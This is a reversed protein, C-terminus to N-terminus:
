HALGLLDAKLGVDIPNDGLFIRLLALNFEPEVICTGDGHGNIGLYTGQGPVWDISLSDGAKLAKQANVMEGLKAIGVSARAVESPTSTASIARVLVDSIEKGSVGRLFHLQLRRAMLPVTAAELSAVPKATYLSAVYIKVLFKRRLGAGNLRLPGASTDVSSPVRVDAIVMSGTQTWATVSLSMMVIALAGMAMVRAKSWLVLCWQQFDIM